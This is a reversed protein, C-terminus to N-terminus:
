RRPVYWPLIGCTRCFRREAVMTGWRYLITADDGAEKTESDIRFNTRPVVVHVNGRMKCDSCNCRWARLARETEDADDVAFRGRVRGCHCGVAYWTGEGGGGGGGGGVNDGATGDSRSSSAM